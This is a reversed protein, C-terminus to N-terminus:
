FPLDDTPGKKTNRISPALRAARLRSIEYLFNDRMQKLTTIQTEITNAEIRLSDIRTNTQEVQKRLTTEAISERKM